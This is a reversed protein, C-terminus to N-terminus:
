NGPEIFAEVGFSDMVFMQNDSLITNYLYGDETLEM